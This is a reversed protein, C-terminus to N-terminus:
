YRYPISSSRVQGDDLKETKGLDRLMSLVSACAVRPNANPGVLIEYFEFPKDPPCLPLRCYPMVGFRGPRYALRTNRMDHGVLRWEQEESFGPNKIASLFIAARLLGDVLVGTGGLRYKHQDLKAFSQV